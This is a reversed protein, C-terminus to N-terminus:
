FPKPVILFSKKKHLDPEKGMKIFSTSSSVAYAEVLPSKSLILLFHSTCCPAHSNKARTIVWKGQGLPTSKMQPHKLSIPLFRVIDKTIPIVM